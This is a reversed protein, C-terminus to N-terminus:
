KRSGRAVVVEVSSSSVKEDSDICPRCGDVDLEDYAWRYRDGDETRGCVVRSRGVGMEESACAQM